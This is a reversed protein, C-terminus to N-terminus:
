TVADPLRTALAFRYGFDPLLTLELYRARRAIEVAKARQARSLLALRAGVGAANGVQRFKHSPLDPLMGVRVASSINIHTGFAGAVIVKDLEDPRVHMAQLLADIGVRMAGKALLIEVVDSQTITIDHGSGSAAAPVILFEREDGVRRVGPGDALRGRTNLLGVRRLEAVADLVGSGCLGIPPGGDITATEVGTAGLRVQEIAGTVARLGHTIHAGEFAPGSATSCTILDGKAALVVETNTGIDLGIMIKDSCGIGTALIMAVHDAGVFGAVNPLFHAYAGPAVRLGLDRAKVDFASSVAPTYPALGLQEVPLDAALHHMATNGVLVVEVIRGPEPCLRLTLENLGDIIARHLRGANGNMASAIRSMVDEGFAIQPNTIGDAALCQGSEMDVLYGAVKTTGIDVALGLPAQSVPRVDVVEDGRVATRACWGGSRLIEPLRRLAFLDGRLEPISTRRGLEEQLRIWDSRLDSLSPKPLVVVHEQVPPEFPVSVEAGDVELRQAALQSGDPVDIKIDSQVLTMCALRYGAAIQAPSLQERETETPPSTRGEVIRVLCRRCLGYGGCVAALPVGAERAADGISVGELCRVRLGIPEFDILYTRTM